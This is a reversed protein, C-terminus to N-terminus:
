YRNQHARDPLGKIHTRVELKTTTAQVARRQIKEKMARYVGCVIFQQLYNYKKRTEVTYYYQIINDSTVSDYKEITLTNKTLLHIKQHDLPLSGRSNYSNKKGTDSNMTISTTYLRTTTNM